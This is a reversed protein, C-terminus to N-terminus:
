PEQVVPDRVTFWGSLGLCDFVTRVKPTMTSVYFHINREEAHVMAASLIGVGASAIYDVHRIDVYLSSGPTMLDVLEFLVTRLRYIINLNIEGKIGVIAPTNPEAYSWFVQIDEIEVKAKM